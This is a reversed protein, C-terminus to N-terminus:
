LVVGGLNFAQQFRLMRTALTNPLTLWATAQVQEGQLYNIYPTRATENWGIQATLTKGLTAVIEQGVQLTIGDIGALAAELTVPIDVNTSLVSDLTYALFLKERQIEGVAWLLMTELEGQSAFAYPNLPTRVVIRDAFLGLTRWD